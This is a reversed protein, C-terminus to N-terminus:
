RGVILLLWVSVNRRYFGLIYWKLGDFPERTIM